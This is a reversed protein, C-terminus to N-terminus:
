LVPQSLAESAKSADPTRKSHSLFPKEFFHYFVASCLVTAAFGLTYGLLVHSPGTFALKKRFFEMAYWSTPQHILFFSYSIRGLLPLPGRTLPAKLFDPATCVTALLGASGVALLIDRLPLISHGLSPDLIGYIEFLLSSAALVTWLIKPTGERSVGIHRV